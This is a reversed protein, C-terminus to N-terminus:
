LLGSSYAHVGRAVLRATQEGVRVRFETLERQAQATWGVEAICLLRPFCLHEVEDFTRVKESWLPAEVGEIREDGIGPVITAPDWDYARDVDIDGAWRRGLPDAVDHRMDLYTRGAPSMVFRSHTALAAIEPRIWHQVITRGDLPAQAIEEWGVMQKGQRTVERQLLDVFELYEVHETAAAEDGGVHLYPGPTIAALHSIVDAVFTRTAAVDLHLSSFGVDKGTYVPPAEGGRNLAPVSALAANTHGPLDVEPVVTVFRSEAHTVIRTWDATTLWGGPDGGVATSGGVETLTPWGPIELRWGQDDTLHLHLRNLKFDAICDIFRLIDDVGFFHRALDLMVGRWAFRPSDVIHLAPVPAGDAVLQALTRGGNWLGHSTAAIIAVGDPEVLLEYGEGGLDTRYPDLVETPAGQGHWEGDGGGIAISRPLPVLPFIMPPAYM